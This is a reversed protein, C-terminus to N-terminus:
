EIEGAIDKGELVYNLSKTRPQKQISSIIDYGSINSCNSPTRFHNEYVAELFTPKEFVSLKLLITFNPKIKNPEFSHM